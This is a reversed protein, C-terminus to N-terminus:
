PLDGAATLFGTTKISKASGRSDCEVEGSPREDPCCSSAKCGRDPPQLGGVLLWHSRLCHQTRLDNERAQERGQAEPALHGALVDLVPLAGDLAGPLDDGDHQAVVVGDLEAGLRRERQHLHLPLVDIAHGLQLLRDLAQVVLGSAFGAGWMMALNATFEIAEPTM